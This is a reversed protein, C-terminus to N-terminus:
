IVNLFGVKRRCNDNDVRLTVPNQSFSLRIVPHEFMVGGLRNPGKITM